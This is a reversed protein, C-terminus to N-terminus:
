AALRAILVLTTWGAVAYHALLALPGPAALRANRAARLVNRAGALGGLALAAAGILFIAGQVTERSTGAVAPPGSLSYLLMPPALAGLWAGVAGPGASVVAALKLADVRAGRLAAMLYLPPFCLLQAVPLALLFAPAHAVGEGPDADLAGLWCVAFAGAGLLGTALAGAAVWPSSPRAPEVPADPANLFRLVPTLAGSDAATSITTM